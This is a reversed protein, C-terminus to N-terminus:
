GEWHGASAAETAAALRKTLDAVEAAAASADKVSAAAQKAAADRAAASAAM